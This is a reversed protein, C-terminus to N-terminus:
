AQVPSSSPRVACPTTALALALALACACVCVWRGGSAQASRCSTTCRRNGRRWRSQARKTPTRLHPATRSSCGRHPRPGRAPAAGPWYRLRAAQALRSQSHRARISIAPRRGKARWTHEAICNVPWALELTHMEHSGSSASGSAASTQGAVVFEHSILERWLRTGARGSVGRDRARSRDADAM